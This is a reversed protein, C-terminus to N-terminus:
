IIIKFFLSFVIWLLVSVFKISAYCAFIDELTVNRLLVISQYILTFYIFHMAITAYIQHFCYFPLLSERIRVIIVPFCYFTIRVLKINFRGRDM